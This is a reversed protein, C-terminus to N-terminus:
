ERGLFVRAITTALTRRTFLCSGTERLRGDWSRIVALLSVAPGSRATSRRPRRRRKRFRVQWRETAGRLAPSMERGVASDGKLPREDQRWHLRRLARCWKASEPGLLPVFLDPSITIAPVQNLLNELFCTQAANALDDDEGAVLTEVWAFLPALGTTDGRDLNNPSSHASPASSTIGRILISM